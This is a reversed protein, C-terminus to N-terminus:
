NELLPLGDVRAIHVGLEADVFTFKLLGSFYNKYPSSHWLTYSHFVGQHLFDRMAELVHPNLM